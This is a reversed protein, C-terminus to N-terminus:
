VNSSFRDELYNMEATFLTRYWGEFLFLAYIGFCLRPGYMKESMDYPQIFIFIFFVMGAHLYPPLM